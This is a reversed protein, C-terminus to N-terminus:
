LGTVNEAGESPLKPVGGGYGRGEKSLDGGAGGQGWSRPRGRALASGEALCAVGYDALLPTPGLARTRPGLGAMPPPGLAQGLPTM